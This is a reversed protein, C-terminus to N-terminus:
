ETREDISDLEERMANWIAKAESQRVALREEPSLVKARTEIDFLEQFWKMWRRRDAPYDIADEFKRRAHSNCAARVIAGSSESPLRM